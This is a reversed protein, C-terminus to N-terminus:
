MTKMATPRAMRVPTGSPIKTEWCGREPRQIRVKAAISIVMGEAASNPRIIGTSDIQPCPMPITGAIM